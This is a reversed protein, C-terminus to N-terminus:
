EVSPIGDVYSIFDDLRAVKGIDSLFSSFNRDINARYNILWETSMATHFYKLLKLCYNHIKILNERNYHTAEILKQTERQIDLIGRSLYGNFDQNNAMSRIRVIYDSIPETYLLKEDDISYKKIRGWEYATFTVGDSEFHGYPIKLDDVIKFVLAIIKNNQEEEYLPNFGNGTPMNTNLACFGLLKFFDHIWNSRDPYRGDSKLSNGLHGEPLKIHSTGFDIIVPLGNTNIIVNNDHFDYHTFDLTDYAVKYSRIIHSMISKFRSLLCYNYRLYARLTVGEIKELYLYDCLPFNETEPLICTKNDNYGITRMFGSNNLKNIELGIIIERDFDEQIEDPEEENRIYISRPYYKVVIDGIIYVDEDGIRILQNIRDQLINSQLQPYRRLYESANIVPGIVLVALQKSINKRDDEIFSWSLTEVTLLNKLSILANDRTKSDLLQQEILKLKPLLPLNLKSSVMRKHEDATFPSEPFDLYFVRVFEESADATYDIIRAGAKLTSLLSSINYARVISFIGKWYYALNVTEGRLPPIEIITNVYPLISQYLLRQAITGIGKSRFEEKIWIYVESRNVWASRSFPNPGDLLIRGAVKDTLKDIILWTGWVPYKMMLESTNGEFENETPFETFGADAAYLDDLQHEEPYKQNLLQLTEISDVHVLMVPSEINLNQSSINQSGAQTLKELQDPTFIIADVIAVYLDNFFEGAAVKLKQLDASKLGYTTGNIATYFPIRPLSPDLPQVPDILSLKTPSLSNDLIIIGEPLAFIDQLSKNTRTSLRVLAADIPALIVKITGNTILPYRSKLFYNLYNTSTGNAVLFQEIEYILSDNNTNM